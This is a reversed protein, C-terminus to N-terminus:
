KVLHGHQVFLGTGDTYLTFRPVARSSRDADYLVLAGPAATEEHRYTASSVARLFSADLNYSSGSYELTAKTLGTGVYFARILGPVTTSFRQTQDSVAQGEYIAIPESELDYALAARRVVVSAASFDVNQVTPVDWKLRLSIGSDPGFKQRGTAIVFGDLARIYGGLVNAVQRFAEGTMGSIVPSTSGDKSLLVADVQMSDLVAKAGAELDGTGAIGELSVHIFDLEGGLIQVGLSRQALAASGQEVVLM